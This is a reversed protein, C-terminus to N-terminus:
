NMFDESESLNGEDCTAFAADVKHCGLGKGDITGFDVDDPTSFLLKIGDNLCVALVDSALYDGYGSIDGRLALNRLEYLFDLGAFFTETDEDVVGSDRAVGLLSFGLGGFFHLLIHKIVAARCKTGPDVSIM